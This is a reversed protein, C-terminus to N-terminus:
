GFVILCIIVVAVVVTVVVCFLVIRFVTSFLGAASQRKEKFTKKSDMKQSASTKVDSKVWSVGAGAKNILPTVVKRHFTGLNFPKVLSKEVDVSASIPEAQPAQAVTNTFESENKEIAKHKSLSAVQDPSKTLSKHGFKTYRQTM